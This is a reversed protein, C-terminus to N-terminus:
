AVLLEYDRESLPLSSDEIVRHSNLDAGEELSLQDNPPLEYLTTDQKIEGISFFEDELFEVDRSDAKTLGGNPHEGFM